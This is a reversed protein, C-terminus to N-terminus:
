DNSEQTDRSGESGKGDGEEVLRDGTTSEQGDKYLSLQKLNNLSEKKFLLELEKVKEKFLRDKEELEKNVTIVELAAAFVCDYGDQTASSVISTLIFKDNKDQVKTAINKYVKLIDDVIWTVPLKIDLSVNNQIERLSHFYPRLSKISEFM